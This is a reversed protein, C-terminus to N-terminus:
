LWPREDPDLDPGSDDSGDLDNCIGRLSDLIGKRQGRKRKLGAVRSGAVVFNKGVALESEVRNVAYTHDNSVNLDVRAVNEIPSDSVRPPDEGGVLTGVQGGNEPADDTLLSM